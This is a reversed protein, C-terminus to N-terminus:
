EGFIEEESLLGEDSEIAEIEDKLPEVEGVLKEMIEIQLALTTNVKREIRELKKLLPKPVVEM